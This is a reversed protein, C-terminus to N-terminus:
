CCPSRVPWPWPASQAPCAPLTDCPGLPPGHPRAHMAFAGPRPRNPMPLPPPSAAGKPLLGLLDGMDSTTYSDRTLSSRRPPGTRSAVRGTFRLWDGESHVTGDGLVVPEVHGPDLGPGRGDIVHHGGRAPSQEAGKGARQCRALDSQRRAVDGRFSQTVHFGVVLNQHQPADVHDVRDPAPCRMPLLDFPDVRDM